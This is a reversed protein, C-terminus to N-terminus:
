KGMHGPIFLVPQFNLKNNEPNSIKWLKYKPHTHASKESFKYKMPILTREYSTYTMQCKNFNFVIGRSKFALLVFSIVAIVSILWFIWGVITIIKSSKM